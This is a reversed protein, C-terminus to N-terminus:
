QAFNQNSWLGQNSSAYGCAVKTYQMSSMNIYHGHAEFPEGPGEDWMAQLCGVVVDQESAWNPCTNQAYEGCAGFNGHPSNSSQDNGSQEDTCMEADAWRALPPLCQCEWRFQNIRDVCDQGFDGTSAPAPPACGPIPGPLPGSECGAMDGTSDSATDSDTTSVTTATSTSATSSASASASTPDASDNSTPSTSPQTSANSDDTSSSSDTGGGAPDTTCAVCLTIALVVYRMGATSCPGDVISLSLGRPPAIGRLSAPVGPARTVRAPTAQM